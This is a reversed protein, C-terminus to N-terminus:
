SESFKIVKKLKSDFIDVNSFPITCEIFTNTSRTSGGSEAALRNADSSLGQRLERGRSDKILYTYSSNATETRIVMTKGYFENYDALLTSFIQLSYDRTITDSNIWVSVGDDSVRWKESMLTIIANRMQLVLDKQCQNGQTLSTTRNGICIALGISPKSQICCCELLFSFDRAEHIPSGIEEKALTYSYGAPLYELNQPQVKSHENVYKTVIEILRFKEEQDLDSATRWIGNSKFPIGTLRVIELSNRENWTIGHVYPSLTNALAIHLPKSDKNTLLLDLEKDIMGLRIAEECIDANLGYFSRKESKDQKEGLASVVPLASLIKYNKDLSKAALYSLGGSSIEKDGDIDFKWPNIICNEDDTTIEESSMKDHSFSLWKNGFSNRLVKSMGMGLDVLIFLDHGENKIEDVAKPGLYPVFRISCRSGLSFIVSTLIASSITGDTSNKAIISIDNGEYIHTRLKEASALLTRFFEKRGM